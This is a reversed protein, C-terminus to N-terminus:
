RGGWGGPEYYYVGDHLLYRPARWRAGPAAAEWHGPIWTYQMGSWHWYGPIWVSRAALPPPRTEEMPAPPPGTVVVGVPAPTAEIVCGAAIAAGIWVGLHLAKNM